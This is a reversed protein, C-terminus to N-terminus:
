DKSTIQGIKRRTEEADEEYGLKSELEFKAEYAGVFNPQMAIMKEYLEFLEESQDTADQVVRLVTKFYRTSDSDHELVKQFAEIAMERDGTRFLLSGLDMYILALTDPEDEEDIADYLVGLAEEHRGLGVLTDFKAMAKYYRWEIDIKEDEKIYEMAEEHRGLANLCEAININNTEGTLEDYKIFQAVAEEYLGAEQLEMAFSFIRDISCPKVELGRRLGEVAKDAEGLDRYLTGLWAYLSIDDPNKKIESEVFGVGERYLKLKQLARCKSCILDTHIENPLNLELMRDCAKIVEAYEWKGEYESILDLDAQHGRRQMESRLERIEKIGGEAFHEYADKKKPM